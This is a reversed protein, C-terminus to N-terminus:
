GTNQMQLASDCSDTRFTHKGAELMYRQGDPLVLPVKAQFPVTVTYVTSGDEKVEWQSTFEGLVNCCSGKVRKLRADPMPGIYFRNEEDWRFGCVYRYIWGVINGYAYHNFSNMGEENIKGNEDMSNWREWITTAGLKVERLWGPYDEQLFVTYALENMGNESLAPCLVGTGIFGTSLHNDYEALTRKLGATLVDKRHPKYLGWMLLLAYATQTKEGKLEGGEDLYERIFADKIQAALKEWKRKDQEKGLEAAAKKCLCVSHYHYVSALLEPDTRGIPNHVNGNDLALWDGLQRDNQWLFPIKNEQTRRAVYDAWGCMSEYERELMGKDGYHQYVTWPVIAAADGWGCAGHTYLFPNMGEHYDPKPRPVFFPVSGGLEKQELMLNEMYHHLFGPVYMHFAAADAYAAIDGTWGMREDRQPCDTPIDLFNCKQSRLTNGILRNVKEDGTDISGTVDIDSMLRFAMFDERRVKEIGEVKVYRFGFFTFHPRIREKSYGSVRFEAKATRLNDRYFCGDQLVEGFSLVVEQNTKERLSFEVWGTITEGFDLVCEGRPTTIIKQVLLTEVKHIPPNLREKLLAKNGRLKEVQLEKKEAGICIHEGDYINNELVPSEEAKWSDDTCIVQRSGDRYTIHLEGIVKKQNGYLNQYGGEFVFRGKYWGEGLLFGLVCTGKKVYGTLDFTQYEWLFDYAHYGPLLYEGGVHEGNLYPEYLGHGMCYLVAREVEGSVEFEKYLFPMAEGEKEVAIFDAEWPEEMKGTEFYASESEAEEREGKVLVRWYYRTKPLLPIDADYFIRGYREMEGTDLVMDSFDKNGSVQIRTWKDTKEETDWVKWTFHLHDYGYGIPNKMHNTKLDDIRM